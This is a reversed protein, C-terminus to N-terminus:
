INLLLWFYITSFFGCFFRVRGIEWGLEERWRVFFKSIVPFTAGMLTTPIVLVVFALIFRILGFTYSSPSVLQYIGIYGQTLVKFLLPILLCYIGIGIQLRGYVALPDKRKDIVRGFWFSGLGLGAMFSTLVTSVAYVTTGFILGLMRVWVVEYVLGSVGSLFFLLLVVSRTKKVYGEQIFERNM